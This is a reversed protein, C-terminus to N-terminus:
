GVLVGWKALYERLRTVDQRADALAVYGDPRILYMADRKLGARVAGASWAFTHVPVGAGRVEASAAGYVHVQWDLSQLPRFNDLDAVWPLRDGGRVGGARGASLSSPSYEIRTQSILRFALRRFPRLRAMLPMVYPLFVGRVFRGLLGRSVVGVFARDTTAVLSRAFRIREPEYTDLLAASARGRLVAALKWALNIADGIGTNMGQGGAPSHVHGADGALFARGVRFRDAVRHHISYASFWNVRGVRVRTTREVHERLDEITLGDRAALIDPVVGIFRVTGSSRVPLVLCFTNSELCANLNGDAAVGEGETDAVYFRQEYKGGPFNVGLTHRVTSHSGDCGCLYAAEAHEEGGPTRLTARVCDGVEQFATLETNWEVRVGVAALQEGLLREHDDQPYSLAFPFPSIGAGIDDLQIRAAVRGRQRLRIARMPNGATIVADAIGLQRYFELTRAQVAIARSEQGPGVNKEVIRPV